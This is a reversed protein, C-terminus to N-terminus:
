KAFESSYVVTLIKENASGNDNAHVIIQNVGGILNINQEFSGSNDSQLIYDEGESSITIWSNAKTIGSVSTKEETLVENESPSAVSLVLENASNGEQKQAIAKETNTGNTKLANNARLFGYSVIVGLLIGLFVIVIVEKRM